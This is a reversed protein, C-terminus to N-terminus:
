KRNIIEIRRKLRERIEPADFWLEAGQKIQTLEEPTLFGEYTQELVNEIKKIMFTTHSKLNGTNGITGFSATHIMSYANDLVIVEHCYLSIISAASHCAGIIIAIVHANTAKIGEVIIMATDLDGGASDIFIRIVDESEADFLISILDRYDASHTIEGDLFVKYQHTVNEVASIYPTMQQNSEISYEYNDPSGM